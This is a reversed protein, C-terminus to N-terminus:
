SAPADAAPTTDRGTEATLAPACTAFAELVCLLAADVLADGRPTGPGPGDGPEGYTDCAGPGSRADWSTLFELLREASVAPADDPTPLASLRTHLLDMLQQRQASPQPTDTM